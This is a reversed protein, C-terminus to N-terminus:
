YICFFIPCPYAEIWKTFYDGVVLIKVNGWSMDIGIRKFPVGAQALKMQAKRRRGTNMEKAKM